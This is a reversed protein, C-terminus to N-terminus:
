LIGGLKWGLFLVWPLAALLTTVSMYVVDFDSLPKM